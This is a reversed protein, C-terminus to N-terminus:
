GKAKLMEKLAEVQAAWCRQEGQAAIMFQLM